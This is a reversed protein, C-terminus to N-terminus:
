GQRRVRGTKIGSPAKLFEQEIEAVRRALEGYLVTPDNLSLGAMQGDNVEIVTWGGDQKEAVDIAFFTAKQAIAKAARRAVALGEPALVGTQESQTWYFGTSLLAEGLFFCRHENAFPLGNIGTELTVLPVFERVLLKQTGILDDQGLRVAVAIAEAKTSAFMHTDWQHKRSNTCGKVVWPGGRDPVEALSFYTKPTLDKIDFYYDFDAMYRHEAWSNILRSGQLALGREIEDYFPLVSYRGIVLQNHLGVMTNSIPLVLGAAVIEEKPTLSERYLITSRGSKKMKAEQYIGKPKKKQGM